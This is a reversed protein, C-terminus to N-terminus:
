QLGLQLTHDIRNDRSPTLGRQASNNWSALKQGEGAASLPLYKLRMAKSFSGEAKLPQCPLHTMGMARLCRGEGKIPSPEPPLPLRAEEGGDGGEGALPPHPIYRGRDARETSSPQPSPIGAAHVRGAVRLRLREGLSLSAACLRSRLVNVRAWLLMAAQRGRGPITNGPPASNHGSRM